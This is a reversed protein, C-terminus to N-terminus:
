TRELNIRMFSIFTVSGDNERQNKAHRQSECVKKERIIIIINDIVKGERNGSRTKDNWGTENIKGVIVM